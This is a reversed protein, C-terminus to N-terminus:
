RRNRRLMLGALALLGAVGAPEPVTAIWRDLPAPDHGAQGFNQRLILFDGLDVDGDEDFDAHVVGFADRRGFNQRLVLFDGLDVDRDADADGPLRLDLLPNAALGRNDVDYYAAVEDLYGDFGTLGESYWFSHGHAEDADLRDLMKGVEAWPTRPGSGLLRLGAGTTELADGAVSQQTTWDRAFDAHTSRYVQPIYEDFLGAEAWAPWDAAYNNLSFPYVSPSASLILDADAARLATTLEAAFVTVKGARWQTFQADRPDTPLNRGTEALYAARTTADYGFEVPWALRDDFQVGDIHGGRVADLTMDIVLKRVEPVLPNMWTFGNSANTYRGSQDKLLWGRQEALRGLPRSPNGFQAALGYEFWAVNVVGERRAANGTEALLDRGGLSPNRGAGAYGGLLADLSPSDFNAYGNKWAEVYITNLGADALRGVTPAVNGSNLATSSTTTLWTGRVEARPGAALALAPMAALLILAASTTKM